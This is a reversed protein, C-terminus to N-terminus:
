WEDILPLWRNADEGSQKGKAKCYSCFVKM